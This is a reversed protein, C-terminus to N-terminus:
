SITVSLAEKSRTDKMGTSRSFSYALLWQACVNTTDHTDTRWVTGSTSVSEKRDSIRSPSNKISSPGFGSTLFIYTHYFHNLYLVLYVCLYVYVYVSEHRNRHGTPTLCHHPLEQHADLFGGLLNLKSLHDVNHNDM